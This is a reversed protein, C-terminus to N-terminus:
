QSDWMILELECCALPDGAQSIHLGWLFWWPRLWQHLIFVCKSMAWDNESQKTGDRLSSAANGKESWGSGGWWRLNKLKETWWIDRLLFTLVAKVEESSHKRGMLFHKIVAAGASFDSFSLSSLDSPYFYGGSEQFPTATVGGIM